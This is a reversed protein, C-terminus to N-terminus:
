NFFDRGWNLKGPMDADDDGPQFRGGFASEYGASSPKQKTFGLDSKNIYVLFLLFLMVIFGIIFLMNLYKQYKSKAKQVRTKKRRRKIM